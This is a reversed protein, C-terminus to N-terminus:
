NRYKQINFLSHSQGGASSCGSISEGPSFSMLGGNGNGNPNSPVTALLGLCHFLIHLWLSLFFFFNFTADMTRM